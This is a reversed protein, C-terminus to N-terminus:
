VYVCVCVYDVNEYELEKGGLQLLKNIDIIKLKVNEGPPGTPRGCPGTRDPGTRDPGTTRSIEVKVRKGTKMRLTKLRCIARERERMSIRKM